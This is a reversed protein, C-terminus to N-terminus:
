KLLFDKLVLHTFDDKKRRSVPVNSGDSMVVTGDKLYQAISSTNILHSKHTSYFGYSELMDKFVGVNYSSVICSGDTLYIRTYKQWGECRIIDSIKVFDYSHLGPIAVKTDQNGLHNINYKLVQYKEIKQRDTIRGKAKSVAAILEDTNVPKYLYDVASVKLADLVYDNYGTVFIIEFNIREFRQLLDFGSGGPMAIDLFIIDPKKTTIKEYAIDINEATDIVRIGDCTQGLKVELVKRLKPEDDIIIAEYKTM